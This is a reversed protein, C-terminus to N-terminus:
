VTFVDVQYAPYCRIWAIFHAIDYFIFHLKLMYYSLAFSQEKGTVVTDLKFM